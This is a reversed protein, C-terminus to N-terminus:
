TEKSIESTRPIIMTMKMHIMSLCDVLQLTILIQSPKGFCLQCFYGHVGPKVNPEKKIEHGTLVEELSEINKTTAFQEEITPVTAEHTTDDKQKSQGQKSIHGVVTELKKDFHDKIDKGLTDLQESINQENTRQKKVLESDTQDLKRKRVEETEEDSDVANDGITEMGEVTDEDFDGELADKNNNTDKEKTEDVSAGMLKMLPPMGTAKLKLKAPKGPHQAKTHRELNDKRTEKGCYYCLIQEKGRTVGKSSGPQDGM